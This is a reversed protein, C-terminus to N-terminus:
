FRLKTAAPELAMAHTPPALLQLTRLPLSRNLRVATAHAEAGLARAYEADDRIRRVSQLAEETHAFLIADRGATLTDAYGGREGCVVPLGTAMAEIVVRGFAEFWSDATRYVFGDLSHLFRVPDEAGAPLLEINPTGSLADALCTGGMIRVRVGEAALTRWLTTDDQHHKSAVDRSLRGVTFPRNRERARYTFRSLDIPSELVPGHGQERRRLALSTYIVEASRGCSAIRRLNKRLRDPQATNYILVVRAPAAFRVWHGVRFYTGIFVLTGGHPFALRWPAIKQVPYNEAFRRAPTYESWLRAPARTRLLKWTEITRWDAGGNEDWLPNVLHIVDSSARAM